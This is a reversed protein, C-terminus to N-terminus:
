EIVDLERLWELVDNTASGVSNRSVSFGQAITAEPHMNRITGITNSFGSGGHSNFPIITKGNFDYSELFTYLPAPLNGWWNPYGIFIVDYQDINEIRAKLAPRVGNNLEEQAQEILPQHSAPYQQVTEIRFVDAETAEEIISALFELHGTVTGDIVLRSAGTVADIGDPEPYSFYTILMKSDGPVVIEEDGEDVPDDDSCAIMINMMALALLPILFFKKM